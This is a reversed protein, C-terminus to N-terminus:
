ALVRWVTSAIEECLEDRPRTADLSTVGLRSVEQAYIRAQAALDQLTWHDDKRQLSVEPSLDLYFSARPRPSFLRVLGQQFRFRRQEGYQFRMRAASDLVYRDFIVVRGALTHRSAVRFHWLANELAVLTTWIFRVTASRTRLETGADRHLGSSEQQEPIATKHARSLMAKVPAAIAGLIPNSSIPAWEIAVDYGLGELTERLAQAQTSKGAGDIGSLAIIRPRRARKARPAKAPPDRLL